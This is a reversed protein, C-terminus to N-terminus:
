TTSEEKTLVRAISSKSVKVKVDKDEDIKIVVEDVGPKVNAVVGYIGGITIVKDNKNLSDLLSQKQRNRKREPVIILFYFVFFILMAPVLFDSLGPGPPAAAPNGAGEAAEQAFLVLEVWDFRM